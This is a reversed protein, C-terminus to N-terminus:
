LFRAMQGLGARVGERTQKSRINRSESQESQVFRLAVVRDTGKPLLLSIKM